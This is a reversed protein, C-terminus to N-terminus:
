IEAITVTGSVGTWKSFSSTIIFISKQQKARCLELLNNYKGETSRFMGDKQRSTFLM